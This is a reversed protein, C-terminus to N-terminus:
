VINVQIEIILFEERQETGGAAAFGGRESYDATKDLGGASIHKKVALPYIIDRRVLSLHVSNKLFISQKRMQIHILIHSEPQAKCLKGLLLYVVANGFHELYYAELTKFVALHRLERSTLLLTDGNRPSQYVTRLHQKKVLREAREVQAKSLIHLVLEFADLLRHADSKYIYSM